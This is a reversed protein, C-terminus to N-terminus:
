AVDRVHELVLLAVLAIVAIKVATIAVPAVVMPVTKAVIILAPRQVNVVALIRAAQAVRHNQHGPAHPHVDVEVLHRVDAVAHIQVPLVDQHNLQVRVVLLAVAEVHDQVVQLADRLVAVAVQLLRHAMAHPIAPVAVPLGRADMQGAEM